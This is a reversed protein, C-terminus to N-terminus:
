TDVVGMTAIILIIVGVYVGMEKIIVIVTLVIPTIVEVLLLGSKAEEMLAYM